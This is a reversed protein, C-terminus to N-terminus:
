KIARRKADQRMASRVVAHFLNILEHFDALADLVAEQDGHYKGNVTKVVADELADAAAAVSIWDGPSPERATGAQDQHGPTVGLARLIEHGPTECKFCWALSKGLQTESVSLGAQRGPRPGEPQCIPCYGRHARVQDARPPVRRSGVINSLATDYNGM